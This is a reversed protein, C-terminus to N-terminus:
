FKNLLTLIFSTNKEARLSHVANSEMHILIGAEMKIAKRELRFIGKGELVFVLAERTSTHDSIDTDKAMCFLTADFKNTKFIEKSIIGSKPYEILKKIQKHTIM